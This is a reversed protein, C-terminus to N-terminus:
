SQSSNEDADSISILEQSGQFRINYYHGSPPIKELIFWQKPDYSHRGNLYVDPVELRLTFMCMRQNPNEALKSFILKLM